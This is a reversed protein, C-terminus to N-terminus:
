GSIWFNGERPLKFFFSSPHFRSDHAIAKKPIAIIAAIRPKPPM